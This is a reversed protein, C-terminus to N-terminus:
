LWKNGVPCSPDNGERWGALSEALATCTSRELSCLCDIPRRKDGRGIRQELGRRVTTMLHGIDVLGGDTLRCNVLFAAVQIM